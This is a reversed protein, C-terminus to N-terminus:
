VNAPVAITPLLVTFTAGHGTNSKVSINGHHNEVIKKCVALGIGTGGYVSRDQLRQFIEFVQEAYKQDFGIGNDSFQIEVYWPAEAVHKYRMAVEAKRLKRSTIRVVPIDRSFKISNSILNAFLQHLQTANGKIVPLLDSGIDAGKEKISVELDSVVNEFIVNLDVEVMEETGNSLQAYHLVDKILQSMRSAASIIRPLFKEYIARDGENELIRDCYMQVKRLPEQLDHSAVSAFQALDNNSRQLQKNMIKLERTRDSVMRELEEKANKEDTIDLVTGIFREAMKATNFYVKGQSRIWRIEGDKRKIRFKIDYNGNGNPDMAKEVNRTVLEYDDPYVHKLFVSYDIKDKESFGYIKRCEGSWVLDQSVPNYEWTGMKTAEVAMRFKEESERITREAQKMKSIDRAIKSVGIIRGKDDRVPSVTLAVDILKGDKTIRTTEMHEIVEGRRLKSLIIDEEHHLDHPILKIIPQGIMEESKYGFIHEAAPNWSTVIGNLTKSIIAANSSRIIATLRAGKEEAAKRATIDVLMNMAGTMEGKKNFLPKPHPVVNIRSGDPREVVIEQDLVEQGTALAVAMPCQDLPMPNGEPTFIKFSGCWMDKGIQPEKGWLEVAHKNYFTIYGDNDCTYVAVPLIELLHRFSQDELSSSAPLITEIITSSNGKM